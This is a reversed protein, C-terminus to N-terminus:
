KQFELSMMIKEMFHYNSNDVGEFDLTLFEGTECDNVLYTVFRRQRAIWDGRCGTIQTDHNVFPVYNIHISGDGQCIGDCGLGKVRAAFSCDTKKDLNEEWYYYRIFLSDGPFIVKKTNASFSDIKDIVANVPLQLTWHDSIQQKSFGVLTFDNGPDSNSCSSLILFSIVLFLYRLM